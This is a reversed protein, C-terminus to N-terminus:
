WKIFRKSIVQKGSQQIRLFYIGPKLQQLPISITQKGMYHTPDDMNILSKGQVDIVEIKHINRATVHLYDKAPVPFLHIQNHAHLDEVPTNYGLSFSVSPSHGSINKETVARAM